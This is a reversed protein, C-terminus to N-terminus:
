RDREEDTLGTELRTIASRTLMGSYCSDAVLMIQKAPITKLFDTIQYAPIWNATSDAEADVPLWYGRDSDPDVTGHGAYYILLNDDSTLTQRLKNLAHLLQYRNADLLVQTDFGYNDRLVDAIATADSIASKLRPIFTYNNSGIILAYREIDARAARPALWGALFAAAVWIRASIQIM